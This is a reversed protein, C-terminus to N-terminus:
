NMTKRIRIHRLLASKDIRLERAFGRLGKEKIGAELYALEYQRLSSRRVNTRPKIQYEKLCRFVMDKSCDMLDAIDRVSKGKEEYLSILEQKKPKKGKSPRGRKAVLGAAVRHAAIKM